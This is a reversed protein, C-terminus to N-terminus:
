AADRLYPAVESAFLRLCKETQEAPQTAIVGYAQSALANANAHDQARGTQAVALAVLVVFVLRRAIAVYPVIHATSSTITAREISVVPPLTSREPVGVYSFFVDSVLSRGRSKMSAIQSIARVQTTVATM